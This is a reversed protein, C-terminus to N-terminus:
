ICYIYQHIHLYLYVYSNKVMTKNVLDNEGPDSGIKVTMTDNVWSFPFM